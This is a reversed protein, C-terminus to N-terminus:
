GVGSWLAILAEMTKEELDPTVVLSNSAYSYRVATVSFVQEKDLVGTPSLMAAQPALNRIGLNCPFEQIVKWLPVQIGVKNKIWGNLTFSISQQPDKYRALYMDRYQEAVTQPVTPLPVGWVERLWYDSQSEADGAIATQQQVNAADRYMCTVSNALEMLSPSLELGGPSCDRRDFWFHVTNKDQPQFYPIPNIPRSGRFYGSRLWFYWERRQSDSMTALRPLLDGPYANDMPQWPYNLTNTEVINAQDSSVAPCEDTLIDRVQESTTGTDVWSAADNYVQRFCLDWFPGICQIRNGEETVAPTIVTGEAVIEVGEDVIVLRKGIYRYALTFSALRERGVLVEIDRVGGHVAASIIIDEVCPTLDEIFYPNDFGSFLYTRLASRM